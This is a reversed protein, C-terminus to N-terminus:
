SPEHFVLCIEIKEEFLIIKLELTVSKMQYVVTFRTLIDCAVGEFKYPGM